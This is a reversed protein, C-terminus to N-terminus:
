EFIYIFHMQIKLMMLGVENNNKSFLFLTIVEITIECFNLLFFNTIGIM